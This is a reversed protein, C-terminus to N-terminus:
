LQSFNAPAASAPLLSAPEGGAGLLLFDELSHEGPGREWAVTWPGRRSRLGAAPQGRREGKWSVGPPPRLVKM